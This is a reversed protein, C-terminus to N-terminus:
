LGILVLYHQISVTRALGTKSTFEPKIQKDQNSYFDFLNEESIM